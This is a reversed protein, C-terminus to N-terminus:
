DSNKFVDILDAFSRPRVKLKNWIEQRVYLCDWKKGHAQSLDKCWIKLRDRKRPDDLSEAGKTEVIWREDNNLKIFFDPYYRGLSGDYKVYEISNNLQIDNKFFSNVDDCTDIFKGFEMELKSDCCILNFISKTPMFTLTKNSTLYPKTESINNMEYNDKFGMDKLMLNNIAKKFIKLIYQTTSPESLNRVIDKSTLDIKKGYLNREVFVKIKEYLFDGLSLRSMHLEKLLTETYFKIVSTADRSQYPDLVCRDVEKGEIIERLIIPKGKQEDTYERINQPKFDIQDIDLEYLSLFDRQIRANVNPYDINLNNIDKDKDIEIVLPGSPKSGPGMSIKELQVGEEKLKNVFDIFKETGIVELTEDINEGFYMRRLGRGLTQEPLIHSGYPRLGVITTVNKVDWGEKLMLVSVIARIPSDVNDVTNVLRRLNELEEKGKTTSDNIVGTGDKTNDNTHICFTGNKLLPYTSKLYNEVDDANKTNDVMVFLLAKKKMKLHKEFQLQWRQVGLDIFERYKESYVTSSAIELPEQNDEAVVVQKVVGQHIAEVLPYDSITQLFIGGNKHKPTASVDIQLVLKKNQQIFNNDIDEIVRKWANEEHIHHAEDNLVILDDLNKIMDMISAKNTKNKESRPVKPGLFYDALNSDESTRKRSHFQDINTLFINGNNSPASIKDKIHMKPNFTWDIDQYGSPPLIPDSRFIKLGDFDSKLRELVITNPAILLFNTSLTSDDINKKHFYSWTILLSLVKTKGSGTAAKLVFRLWKDTIISDTIDGWSDFKLLEENNRIKVKEYLYIVSEVAERQSFYYQFNDKHDTSFWYQLLYKSVDSIGDYGFQRWRFVEERIKQVFPARYHELNIKSSHIDPSWRDKPEIIEFPSKSLTKPVPM